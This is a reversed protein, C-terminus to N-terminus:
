SGTETARLHDTDKLMKAATPASYRADRAFRVRAFFRPRSDKEGSEVSFSERGRIEGSAIVGDGDADAATRNVLTASASDPKAAIPMSIRHNRWKVIKSPPNRATNERSSVTMRSPMPAPESAPHKKDRHGAWHNITTCPSKTAAVRRPNAAASALFMSAM